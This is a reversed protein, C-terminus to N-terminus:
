LPLLTATNAVGMMVIILCNVMAGLWVKGTERFLRRNIYAAAFLPPVLPLALLPYLRDPGWQAVGTSFLVIYQVANVAVIGLVNGLGCVLLNLWEKQGAVRNVSNTLIANAAFFVFYFPLYQLLIPLKDATFTCVALFWLRFDTHFFYEAAAAIGYFGTFVCVALALTRLFERPSTRIGWMAPTVGGSRGFLRYSGWFLLLGVLGNFVAWLMLFNNPQQPFWRAFAMGATGPFIVTDLKTVPMFTVASVVWSLAWGGWFFAKGRPDGYTPLPAPADGRLKEFCPVRLLLVALPVIALFVGVLGLANLWEKALWLQDGPELAPSLQFAATFFAINDATSRTSFHQMQHTGRPNYVVRLTRQAADGYFRGMEVGAVKEGEPLVSNVASLAEYSNGTLDGNGKSLDYCGEDYVGYNLGLNAHIGQMMEESSLRINGSALGANVKNQAEAAAQEAPTVAEGGDSDPAKAAELAAAYRGGYQALTMWVAMGGMSHGMVGIRGTDVFDLSRSAFEVMPVLGVGEQITSDIVSLSSSSSEGHFYPDIAMVAVGRRSLEIATSDQMERNNLYGPCTIVLPVQNEASATKPLFLDGTIWKGSGTPITFTTVRVKGFDTQLASAGICSVLVLVIAIALLRVATTTSMRQKNATTM